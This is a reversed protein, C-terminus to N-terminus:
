ATLPSAQFGLKMTDLCLVKAVLFIAQKTKINYKRMVSFSPAKNKERSFVCHWLYLHYKPPLASSILNM